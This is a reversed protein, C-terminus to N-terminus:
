VLAGTVMNIAMELRASAAMSPVRTVRIGHKSYCFELVPTIKRTFDLNEFRVGDQEFIGLDELVLVWSYRNTYASDFLGPPQLGDCIYYAEGDFIGRDLFVPEDSELFPAEAALQRRLVERQFGDRDVWPLVKGEQIIGTAQERVVTYGRERLGNVLTSKGVAPGGTIVILM